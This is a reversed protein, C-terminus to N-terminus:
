CGSIYGYEIKEYVFCKVWSQIPSQQLFHERELPACHLSPGHQLVDQRTLIFKNERRQYYTHGDKLVINLCRQIELYRKSTIDQIKEM